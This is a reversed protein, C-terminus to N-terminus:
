DLRRGTLIEAAAIGCVKAAGYTALHAAGPTAAGPLGMEVVVADPRAALLSAVIETAWAHRDLNRVAVVLPRDVAARLQDDVLQPEATRFRAVTTGPLLEALIAGVGWPTQEGVAINATPALEVVHPAVTIPEVTGTVRIARRAVALGLAHDVPEADGVKAWAALAHVRGAAEALREEPLRGEVVAAVLADRLHLVTEEDCLGGGVCVADVGAAIARVTGDAIGYTHAVAGMEIADTVILGDYGLEERLLGTMIRRSLTAPVETDYAPLLIHATMIAKTGAAISAHFPVLERAALTERSVDVRPLGLHSDIATDGHGPFHKVCAAVGAAQLGTVYAATHAAVLEPDAGFSRVGIIPNDPNSNVDASPAWNLNVGYGALERGLGRAVGETLEVDDVIGLALNGPWMSGTNVHMRTVDGGEEDIAVILDPNDRRLERTLATVQEPTAINRGFLGVSGLGGAVHRHVWDPATHGAFGPQLIALALRQLRESM